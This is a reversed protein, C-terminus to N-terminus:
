LLIQIRIKRTDLDLKTYPTNVGPWHKANAKDAGPGLLACTLAAVVTLFKKPTVHLDENVSMWWFTCTDIGALGGNVGNLRNMSMM